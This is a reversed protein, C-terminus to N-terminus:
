KKITEILQLIIEQSIELIQSAKELEAKGLENLSKSIKEKSIFQEVEEKLKQLETGSYLFLTIIDCLDKIKKHEKNRGKISSIKMAILLSPIPIFVKKNFNNIITKQEDEFVNTLLPEDIPMFGIKSKLSKNTKSIILDVYMPFIFHSPTKIAEEKSLEKMTESHVEKYFRFSVQEFGLNKLKNMVKKMIKLDNFGLDIDRSGLYPYGKEKQFLNNVSFYVAWGGLLCIPEELSNIVKNLYNFSTKTEQDPYM